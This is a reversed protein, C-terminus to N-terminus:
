KPNQRHKTNSFIYYITKQKIIDKDISPLLKNGYTTMFLKFTASDRFTSDKRASNLDIKTLKTM